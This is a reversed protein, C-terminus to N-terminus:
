THIIGILELAANWTIPNTVAKAFIDAAMEDTKCYMLEVEKLGKFAGCVWSVNVRHTRGLHRLTPDKEKKFIQVNAQNDGRFLLRVPNELVMDWLQIAPLGETRIALDAAFVEAEPTSHFVCSQKKSIANLLFFSNPGTPAIFVGATSKATDLCGAFGADSYLTLNLNESNDGIHGKLKYDLSSNIYCVLRHLM